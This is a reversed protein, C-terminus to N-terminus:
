NELLTANSTTPDELSITGYGDLLSKRNITCISCWGEVKARTAVMDLFSHLMNVNVNYLEDELNAHSQDVTEHWQLHYLWYHHDIIHM